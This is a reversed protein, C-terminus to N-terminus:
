FSKTCRRNKIGWHSSLLQAALGIGVTKWNIAKKASSFFYAILLLVVMGLVGRWVSSFSIGANPIMTKKTTVPIVESIAEPSEEFSYTNQSDSIKLSTDTLESIRFNQITDKPTNYFFVLLNNQYLYDGKAKIAGASDTKIEFEGEDLILRDKNSFNNQVISTDQTSQFSWNKSISQSHATFIGFLVFFLCYWYNKM